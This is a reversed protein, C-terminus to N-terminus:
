RDLYSITNTNIYFFRVEFTLEVEADEELYCIRASGQQQDEREPIDVEFSVKKVRKRDKTEPPPLV